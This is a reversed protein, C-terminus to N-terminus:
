RKPTASSGFLRAVQVFGPFIGILEGPQLFGKQGMPVAAGGLVRCGQHGEEPAKQLVPVLGLQVLVDLQGQGFVQGQHFVPADGYVFGHQFFDGLFHGAPNAQLLLAQFWAPSSNM